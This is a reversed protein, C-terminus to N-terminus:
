SRPNFCVLGAPVRLNFRAFYSDPRGQGIALEAGFCVHRGPPMEWRLVASTVASDGDVSSTEKLGFVCM